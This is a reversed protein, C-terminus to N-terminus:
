VEKIINNLNLDLKKIPESGIKIQEKIYFSTDFHCHEVYRNYDSDRYTDVMLSSFLPSINLGVKNFENMADKSGLWLKLNGGASRPTENNENYNVFKYFSIQMNLKYVQYYNLDEGNFNEGTSTQPVKSQEFITVYGRLLDPPNEQFPAIAQFTGCHNKIIKIITSYIGM